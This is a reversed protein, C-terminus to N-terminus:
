KLESSVHEGVWGKIFTGDPDYQAAQKDLNFRRSGRPDAGVGALYQWNGYNAAVDFDILQQEFYAAGYRWDVGLEHILCSAVLQRSRNSLWGTQKLQRMAANVIPFSTTGERWAMFAEAYFTTLPRKNAVGKFAFFRAGYHYLMWQFYERWLLEFYLWYTSENKEVNREYRDLEAAVWRVSLSGNALWASLRSSFDWGDLGNRTEKYRQIRHTDWLYHNLQARGAIEGGQYPAIRRDSLPAPDSKIEKIPAPLSEPVPLPLRPKIGRKEVAKRFQTFTAPIDPLDFPLQHQTFLTHADSVVVRQPFREVLMDVQHREHTGPHDTVGILDFEHDMCLNAVVELPKGTRIILKQGMADLARHLETLSQWLFAERPAGLHKSQFHDARYWSPDIVFVCTLQDCSSALNALAPNDHIRLDHRFWMLGRQM